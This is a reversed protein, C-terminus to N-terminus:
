VRIVFSEGAASATVTLESLNSTRQGGTWTGSSSFLTGHNPCRFSTANNVVNITTGQHPCVMSFARYTTSSSRVLAVPRQTGNVRAIGGIASLAPYDAPNVTVSSSGSVSGPGTVSDGLQGDGCASFLIAAVAGLGSSIVFSRRDVSHPSHVSESQDIAQSNIPLSRM